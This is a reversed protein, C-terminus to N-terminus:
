RRRQVAAVCFGAIPGFEPGVVMAGIILIPSDLMIGVSAILCALVMFLLFSASLETNESTRSEVEEWVVADSPFGVAAKEARAAAESVLSDINEMAISGERHIDLEKLDGIIVSADERAVDCLIVDGEPKQAAGELHILNFVSPSERLLDLAHEANHSPVVIRLHVVGPLTAGHEGVVVQVQPRVVDALGGLREGLLVDVAVQGRGLLVPDLLQPDRLVDIAEAVRELEPSCGYQSSCARSSRPSYQSKTAELGSFSPISASKTLPASSM